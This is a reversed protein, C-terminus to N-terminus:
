FNEVRDDGARLTFSRQVTTAPPILCARGPTCSAASARGTTSYELTYRGPALNRFAYRSRTPATTAVVAKGHRLTLKVANNANAGM